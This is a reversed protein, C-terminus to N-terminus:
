PTYPLTRVLTYWPNTGRTNSTGSVKTLKTRSGCEYGFSQNTRGARPFIDQYRTRGQQFVRPRTRTRTCAATGNGVRQYAEYFMWVRTRCKPLNPVGAAFYGPVPYPRTSISPNPYPYPFLCGYWVLYKPLSPVVDMGTGSVKTLETRSEYGYGTSQYIEYSKGYRVLRVRVRGFVVKFKEFSSCEIHRFRPVALLSRVTNM